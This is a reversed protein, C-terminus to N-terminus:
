DGIIEFSNEQEVIEFGCFIPTDFYYNPHLFRNNRQYKILFEKWSMNIQIKFEIEPNSRYVMLIDCLNDYLNNM